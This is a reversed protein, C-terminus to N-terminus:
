SKRLSLPDRRRGPAEAVEFRNRGKEKARYLAEDAEAFLRRPEEATLLSAVGLSVTLRAGPQTHEGIFSEREVAVRLREAVDRAEAIGTEPLLLCFEEGGYRYALDTARKTRLMVKAVQRLVTDGKLHGHRDNYRKFHDVDLIILALPHHYREARLAEEALEEDFRRRNFLGTLKDTVSLREIVRRDAIVAYVLAAVTGFAASRLVYTLTFALVPMGHDIFPLKAWVATILALVVSCIAGGLGLNITALVILVFYGFSVDIHPGAARDLFFMPVFLLLILARWLNSPQM